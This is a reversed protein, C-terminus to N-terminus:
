TTFFFNTLSFFFFNNFCQQLLNRSIFNASNGSNTVIPLWVNKKKKVKSQFIDCFIKKKGGVFSNANRIM